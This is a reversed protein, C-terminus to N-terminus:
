PMTVNVKTALPPHVESGDAGTVTLPLGVTLMVPGFIIQAPLM